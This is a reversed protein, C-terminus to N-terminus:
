SPTGAPFVGTGSYAESFSSDFRDWRLGADWTGSATWVAVSDVSYVSFTTVGGGRRGGLLADTANTAYQISRAGPHTDARHDDLGNQFRQM